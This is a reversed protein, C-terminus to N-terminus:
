KSESAMDQWYNLLTKVDKDAYMSARKYNNSKCISVIESDTLEDITNVRIDVLAKGLYAYANEPDEDLIREFYENAKDWEEDETLIYARRLVPPLISVDIHPASKISKSIDVPEPISAIESNVLHQVKTGCERCFLAGELLEKGCKRCYRIPMIENISTIAVEDSSPKDSLGDSRDQKDQIAVEKEDFASKQPGQEEIRKITNEADCNPCKDHLEHFKSNCTTCFYTYPNEPTYAIEIAKNKEEILAPENDCESKM